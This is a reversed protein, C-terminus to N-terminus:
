LTVEVAKEGKKKVFLGTYAGDTAEKKGDFSDMHSVPLASVAMGKARLAEVEKLAAEYDSADYAYLVYQKDLSVPISQSSLATMVDDVVTVFGVAPIDKGFCNLLKDYRGGKVIADGVGYTYAKIIIGTYYNYKSLMSLDFSVYREVGYVQLLDLLRSLYEVAEQARKSHVQSAKELMEKGGYFNSVELLDQLAYDPVNNLSNLLEEAGFLNKNNILERLRYETTEDLGAELCLSRFFNVEGVSVQFDQLGCSLLTKVVLAIMEADQSLCQQAYESSSGDQVSVGMLEAGIETVEKLKGQLSSTNSFVNGRYCLRVPSTNESFYKVVCRAVSPTFDPRLVLTDGEKDFFKYLERSPTTGIEKSFIEFYEFTPTEIDRYGFTHINKLISKELKEKRLLEEGYIDRVGEPTHLRQDRM